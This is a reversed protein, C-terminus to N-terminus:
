PLLYVEVLVTGGISNNTGTVVASYTGSTATFILAADKSTGDSLPFAGASAFAASLEATGAWNDNTGLSVGGAVIELQPDALPQDVGYASLSPGVARVLVKQPTPTNIVFGVCLVNAPSMFTRTSLTVLRSSATPDADYLEILAVGSASGHGSVQATYSGADVTALLAADLSPNPLAFAGLSQSVAAIDAADSSSSWDDNAALLSSGSYLAIMPDALTDTVGYAALTPGVGRILVRKSAGGSATFGIILANNGAGANSRASFSVLRSNSDGSSTSVATPGDPSIPSEVTLLASNSTASGLSNTVIVAYAGVDNTSLGELTLTASTWGAIPVGNRTWQYTPAPSGSADAAFTVTALSPATQSVPQTTITPACDTSTIVTGISLTAAKSTVTGAANTVVVCYAGVDNTSIGELALTPNTWGAIAVGNKLWQYTPAPNGSATVSFTACALPAVTQSVPQATITPASVTPLTGISLTAATSTVTGAANTVVVCYAGVDNTSIGELALTPNTWGAIAVGNKLWQYTPAPSGSAAVSFTACSLPAVTQCVPQTTITPASVTPPAIISLTAATSTVTGAANTVVVCYAGVDNTSIGELALTPNTWGAIAVGNKL